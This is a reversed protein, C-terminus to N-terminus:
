LGHFSQLFGPAPCSPLLGRYNWTETASKSYRHLRQLPPSCFTWHQNQPQPNPKPSEPRSKDPLSSELLLAVEVAAYCLVRLMGVWHRNSKRRKGACICNEPKAFSDLDIWRRGTGTCFLRLTLMFCQSRSSESRSCPRMDLNQGRPNRVHYPVRLGTGFNFFARSHLGADQGM